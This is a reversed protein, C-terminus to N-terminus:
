DALVPSFYQYALELTDIMIANNQANLNSVSWKTPWARIFNWTMLPESKEDLLFVNVDAPEIELSKVAEHFWSILRSDTVLGRKLVLNPFKAPGPLRHAFRNEGGEKVTEVPLEASLGSVEQFRTDLVSTGDLVFDVQFRFAVPPYFAVM